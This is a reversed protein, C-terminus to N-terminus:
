AVSEIFSPLDFPLSTLKSKNMNIKGGKQNELFEKYKNLSASYFYREGYSPANKNYIYSTKDRQIKKVESHLKSIMDIDEIEFISKKDIKNKEFFKESLWDLSTIYSAGAGSKETLNNLVWSKFNEKNSM